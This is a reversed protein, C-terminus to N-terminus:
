KSEDKIEDKVLEEDTGAFLTEQAIFSDAEDECECLQASALYSHPFLSCVVGFSLIFGREILLSNM